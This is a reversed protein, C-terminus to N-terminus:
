ACVHWVHNFDVVRTMASRRAQKAQKQSKAKVKPLKSVVLTRSGTDAETDYAGFTMASLTRLVDHASNVLQYYDTMWTGTGEISIPLFLFFISLMKLM